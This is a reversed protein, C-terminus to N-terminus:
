KTGAARSKAAQTLLELYKNGLAEFGDRIRMVGLILNGAPALFVNQAYRDRVQFGVPGPQPAQGSARQFDLYQSMMNQAEQADAGQIIFLEFEQGQISYSALYGHHLFGYGLVNQLVFKESNSILGEAPFLGLLPPLQGKAGAKKEIDKAIATLTSEGNPGCDFCLLKVYYSGVVFNLAGEEWYGQIGVPLFRSEPFRESSYIGFANLENGMDYLEVTLTAASKKDKYNGVALERFGYSLYSEAGGNIYEFLTGPLYAAPTETLAWGSPEPLLSRLTSAAARGGQAGSALGFCLSWLV